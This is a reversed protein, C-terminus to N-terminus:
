LIIQKKNYTHKIVSLIILSVDLAIFYASLVRRLHLVFVEKVKTRNLKTQQFRESSVTVQYLKIIM